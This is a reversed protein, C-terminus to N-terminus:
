RALQSGTWGEDSSVDEVVDLWDPVFDSPENHDDIEAILTGDDHEDIAVVLGDRQVLHRRKHLSRAPLVVLVAWEDDSLYFNTCAVEAPGHTLRVKHGLKRVVSGDSETVERLRLRTGILYRDNIERTVTVGEPLRAVRYRREREVVAYKLSNSV